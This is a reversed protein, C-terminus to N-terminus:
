REKEPLSIAGRCCAVSGNGRAALDAGCGLPQLRLGSSAYPQLDQRIQAIKHTAEAVDNSKISGYAIAMNNEIDIYAQKSKAAVVGEVELWDTQFGKLEDAATATNNNKIAADARDLRELLSKITVQNSTAQTTTGNLGGSIFKQNITHLNQLSKVVQSQQPPQISLAYKVEGTSSEIDKYAQRSTKKVGDEIDFWNDQFKKFAESAAPFDKAEAKTIAQEIYADQRQLDQQPTSAAYTPIAVVCLIASLCLSLLVQWRRLQFKIM